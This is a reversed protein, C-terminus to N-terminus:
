SKERTLIHKVIGRIRTTFNGQHNAVKSADIHASSGGAGLPAVTANAVVLTHPDAGVSNLKAPLVVMAGITIATMTAATLGIAARPASPKYGNM